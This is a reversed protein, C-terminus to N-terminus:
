IDYEVPRSVSILKAVCFLVVFASFAIIIKGPLMSYYSWWDKNVFYILPYVLVDMFMMVVYEIIARHTELDIQEQVIRIDSYRQAIPILAERMESNDITRILTECWEHFTNNNIKDRLNRVCNKISPNVACENLFEEFYPKVLPSLDDINERVAKIIDGSRIYSTTVLSVSSELQSALYKRYKNRYLRLRWLPVFFLGIGLVVILIINQNFMFGIFAGLVAFLGCKLFTKQLEGKQGTENLIEAATDRERQLFNKKGSYYDVTDSLNRKSPTIAARIEKDADTNEEDPPDKTIDSKKRNKGFLNFIIIIGTALLGIALVALVIPIFNM